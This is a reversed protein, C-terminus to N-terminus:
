PCGTTDPSATIRSSPSMAWISAERLSHAPSLGLPTSSSSPPCLLSEEAGGGRTGEARPPGTFRASRGVGAHPEVVAGLVTRFSLVKRGIGPRWVQALACGPVAEGGGPSWGM